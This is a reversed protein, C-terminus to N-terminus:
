PECSGHVADEAKAAGHEGVAVVEVDQARRALHAVGQRVDEQVRSPVQRLEPPRHRGDRPHIGRRRATPEIAPPRGSRREVFSRRRDGRRVRPEQADAPASVAQQIQRLNGTIV